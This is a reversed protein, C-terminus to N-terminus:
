KVPLEKCMSFHHIFEKLDKNEIGIAVDGILLTTNDM